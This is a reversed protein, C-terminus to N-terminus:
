DMILSSEGIITGNKADVFVLKDTRDVKWTLFNKETVSARYIVLEVSRVTKGPQKVKKAADAEKILPTTDFNTIPIYNANIFNGYGDNDTGLVIQGDFVPIGHYLQQLRYYVLDGDKDAQKLVFENEPSNIKMITKVSNLSYIADVPSKIIYDTFRGEIYKVSGDDNKQIAPVGGNNYKALDDISSDKVKADANKKLVVISFRKKQETKGNKVSATLYVTVDDGMPRNVKGTSSIYLKNSSAWTIKNNNKNAEPLKVNKTVGDANENNDYIVQIDDAATSGKARKDLFVYLLVAAMCVCIGVIVLKVVINKM